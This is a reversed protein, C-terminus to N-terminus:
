DILLSYINELREIEQTLSARKEQLLRQQNEVWAKDHLRDLFNLPFASEYAEIEKHLNDIQAELQKILAGDVYDDKRSEETIFSYKLVLQRLTNADLQKYAAKAVILMDQLDESLEPHLDPHLKKVLLRYMTKCDAIKEADITTSCDALKVGEMMHNLKDEHEKWMGTIRREIEKIDPLEGRNLYAQALKVKQKLAKAQVSLNFVEFEDRGILNTYLVYASTIGTAVIDEKKTYLDLFEKRLQDYVKKEEKNM